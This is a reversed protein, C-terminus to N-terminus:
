GNGEAKAKAAVVTVVAALMAKGRRQTAMMRRCGGGCKQWGRQRIKKAQQYNIM